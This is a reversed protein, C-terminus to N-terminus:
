YRTDRQTTRILAALCTALASLNTLRWQRIVWAHRSDTKRHSSGFTRQHLVPPGSSYAARCTHCAMRRVPATGHPRPSSVRPKKGVVSLSARRLGELPAVDHGLRQSEFRPHQSCARTQAYRHDAAAIRFLGGLLNGRRGLRRSRGLRRVGLASSRGWRRLGRFFVM